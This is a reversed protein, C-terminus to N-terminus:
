LVAVENTTNNELVRHFKFIQSRLRGVEYGFRALAVCLALSYNQDTSHVPSVRKCLRQSHAPSVVEGVTKPWPFTFSKSGVSQGSKILKVLGLLGVRGVWSVRVVCGDARNASRVFGVSRGSGSLGTFGVSETWM